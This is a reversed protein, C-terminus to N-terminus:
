AARRINNLTDRRYQAQSGGVRNGGGSGIPASRSVNTISGGSSARPPGLSFYLMGARALQGGIGSISAGGSLASAIANLNLMVVGLAISIVLLAVTDSLIATNGYNTAIHTAFQSAISTLMAITAGLLINLFAFHLAQGIWSETFRQTSSFLACLIFAPGVALVLALSVLAIAYTGIAIAFIVVESISVMLSAAILAFDPFGFSGSSVHSWLLNDLTDYPAALNDILAGLTAANGFATTFVGQVGQVANIAYTQYQGATLAMACIVSIKFFKLAATPISDHVEGRAIAWGMVVLYISVGTLAVPQLANSIATSNTTVYNSLLSNIATEVSTAIGM